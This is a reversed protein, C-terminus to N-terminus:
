RDLMGLRPRNWGLLPSFRFGFAIGEGARDQLGIDLIFDHSFRRLVFDTLLQQNGRLDHTYGAELEWKADITWRGRVGTVEFLEVDLIDRAQSYSFQVLFADNPRVAFTSRSYNTQLSEVDYRGDHRLGIQGEGSGYRTIYEALTAFEGEDEIDSDRDTRFITRLDIDLNEFTAPRQWLFRVGAEYQTGDIPEETRDFPIPQSESQEYWLDTRVSARPAIAHLYGNDTVKHLTTSLEVGSQLAGRAPSDTGDLAETWATGRFQAFPTARIAAVDTRIPLSLRQTTDARGAEGDGVGLLAGGPLDSFLDNGPEGERRTFYGIELDGGYLVPLGTFRGVRREGRYGLLSPLEERQSRFSDIRKQVGGTLYDAGFSKRWRVFTDRQEFRQFDGEYFESQVAADTQSAVAVDVWEGRVIPYRSRVYGFLRLTDRDEVPVRVTGVDVGEDPIGTVFADVRFDEDPDDGPERERIQLGLGLLPGRDWLYRADADWKGRVKKPNMGIRRAIWSGVKGIDFRFATGIVAGFRATQAVGIDRIPTVEGAENEFGDIGFEEDLVVNGISPLPLAVGGQFKLRNGKAGFRWRGDGRPALAFRSTRVVFHPEAHDCTTLTAGNAVLAGSEDSELRETRVRLPVQQGRTVLPYVLEVDQIWAIARALDIYLKSGTIARRDARSIEIGGEMYMARVYEGFEQSQLEFLMEALFNPQKRAAAVDADVPFEDPMPTKLRVSDGKARWRARDLFLAVYDMRASDPGFAVRPSYITILIEDDVVRSDIAGFELTWVEGPKAGPGRIAGRGAFLLYDEFRLEIFEADLSVGNGELHAPGGELRLREEDVKGDDASIIRGDGFDIYLKKGVSGSSREDEDDEQPPVPDFPGITKRPGGIQEQLDVVDITLSDAVLKIEDGLENTGTGQVRGDDGTLTVTKEDAFLELASLIDIQVGGFQRLSFSRAFRIEPDNARLDKQTFWLTTATLTYPVEDGPLRGTVRVRKGKEALMRGREGDLIVLTDGNRAKLPEEGPTSRFSLEVDGKAVLSSGRPELRQAAEVPAGDEGTERLGGDVTPEAGLTADIEVSKSSLEALRGEAEYRCLEVQDATLNMPTGPRGDPDIPGRLFRASGAQLTWRAIVPNPLPGLSEAVIDVDGIARVRVPRQEDLSLDENEEAADDESQLVVGEVVMRKAQFRARGDVGEFRAERVFDAEVRLENPGDDDVEAIPDTIPGLDPDPMAGLPARQVRLVDADFAWVGEPTELESEVRGEARFNSRRLELTAARVFGTRIGAAEQTRNALALGEPALDLIVPVEETGQLVISDEGRVLADASRVEGWLSQYSIDGSAELTRRDVDVNTVTAADVRFPDAGFSEAHFDEARDVFWREGELHASMGLGSRVRVEDETEPSRAVIRTPGESVFRIDEDSRYTALISESELTGEQTRVRVDGNLLVTASSRDELGQARAENEFTVVGSRESSVIRGPGVFVFRMRSNETGDSAADPDSDIPILNGTVPGQGTVDLKLEKGKEDRLVYTLRPEEELVVQRPRGGDFTIRATDGRYVDRGQRITVAGDARAKRVIPRDDGRRVVLVIDISEADITVPPDTAGRADLTSPSEILVQVGDGALVRVTRPGDPTEEEEPTVDVITLDGEEATVIRAQRGNQLQIAVDAGRQFALTEAGAIAVLGRGSGRLDHSRFRVLDDGVSRLEEIELQGRLRPAEIILPSLPSGRKQEVLVDFMTVDLQDALRLVGVEDVRTEAQATEAQIRSRLPQQSQPSGDVEYSEIEVSILEYKLGIPDLPKLQDAVLYLRPEDENRPKRRHVLDGGFVIREGPKLRDISDDAEPATTGAGSGAPDTGDPDDDPDEDTPGDPPDPAPPPMTKELESDRREVVRVDTRRASSEKRRLEFHWLLAAGLGLM